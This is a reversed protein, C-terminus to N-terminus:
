HLQRETDRRLDKLFINQKTKRNPLLPKARNTIRLTKPSTATTTIIDTIGMIGTTVMIAAIETTEGVTGMRVESAGIGIVKDIITVMITTISMITTTDETGTILITEM